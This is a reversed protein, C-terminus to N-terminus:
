KENEKEREKFIKELKDTVGYMFSSESSYTNGDFDFSVTCNKIPKNNIKDKLYGVIKISEDPLGYYTDESFICLARRRNVKFEINLVTPQLYKNGEFKIVAKYSGLPLTNIINDQIKGQKFAVNNQYYIKEGFIIKNWINNNLNINWVM